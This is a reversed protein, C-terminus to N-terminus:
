TGGLSVNGTLTTTGAVSLNNGLSVAGTLTTAGSITLYSDSTIPGGFYLSPYGSGGANVVISSSTTAGPTITIGHANTGTNYISLGAADTGSILLGIGGILNSIQMGAGSGDAAAYIGPGNGTVTGIKAEGGHAAFGAGDGFGQVSLGDGDSGGRLHAGSGITGTCEGKLGHGTGVGILNLGCSNGNQAEAHIGDGSTAGGYALIGHGTSGGVTRIGSATGNGSIKLGPEDTTVSAIIMRELTLVASTGGHAGDALLVKGSSTDLEGAGTGDVIRVRGNSDTDLAYAGGTIANRIEQVADTALESAGIADAAIATATIAGSAFVGSTIAGSGWATGAAHTTNVEPRGGSFTGNSGGFQTVNAAVNGSSDISTATFNAPVTYVVAPVGIVVINSTSSKATFHLVNANTETQTLDFLYYGKANTSDIESASTDGLVTASGFDKGVYATINAADGTKPLNTTSDFAFVILKQSAVNKFM